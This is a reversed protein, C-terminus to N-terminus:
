EINEDEFNGKYAFVNYRNLKDDYWSVFSYGNEDEEIELTDFNNQFDEVTLDQEELYDKALEKAHNIAKKIDLFLYVESDRDGSHCFEYEVLVVVPTTM